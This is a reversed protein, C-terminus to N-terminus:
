GRYRRSRRPGPSLRGPGDTRPPGGAGRLGGRRRPDRGGGRGARGHVAGLAGRRVAGGGGGYQLALPGSAPPRVIARSVDSSGLLIRLYELWVMGVRPSRMRFEGRVARVRIREFPLWTSAM